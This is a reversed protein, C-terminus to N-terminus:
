KAHLQIFNYYYDCSFPSLKILKTRWYRDSGMYLFVKKGKEKWKRKGINLEKLFM